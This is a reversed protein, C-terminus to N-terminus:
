EWYMLDKNCQLKERELDGERKREMEMTYEVCEKCLDECDERLGSSLKFCWRLDILKQDDEDFSCGRGDLREEYFHKLMEYRDKGECTGPIQVVVEDAVGALMLLPSMLYALRSGWGENWAVWEFNQHQWRAHSIEPSINDPEDDKAEWLEYVYGHEGNDAGDDSFEWAAGVDYDDGYTMFEIRLKRFYIGNQYLLGCIRILNKRVQSGARPLVASNSDRNKKTGTYPLPPLVDLPGAEKLFDIGFQYITLM